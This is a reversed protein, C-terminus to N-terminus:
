RRSRGGILNKSRRRGGAGRRGTPGLAQADLCRNSSGVCAPSTPSPLAGFDFPSVAKGRGRPDIGTLIHYLTSGITFVDACALLVRAPGEDCEPPAYGPTCSGALVAVGDIVVQCGGFDVLMLPGSPAVM